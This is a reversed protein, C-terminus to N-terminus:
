RRAKVQAIARQVEIIAVSSLLLHIDPFTAPTYGLITLVGVAFVATLVVARAMPAPGIM